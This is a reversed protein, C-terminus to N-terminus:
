MLGRDELYECFQYWIEIKTQDNKPWRMPFIGGSGSQDYTRWVFSHLINEVVPADERSVHRFEGLDLNTMFEWFWDRASIDTQFYARDAFAILMELVSCPQSYWASDAEIGTENLFYLRLETGDEARNRDGPVVWVFETRYLIGLLDYYINGRPELVKACLWNFYENEIPEGM